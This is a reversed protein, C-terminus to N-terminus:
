FYPVENWVVVDLNKCGEAFYALSRTFQVTLQNLLKYWLHRLQAVRIHDAEELNEWLDGVNVVVRHVGIQVTNENAFNFLNDFLFRQWSFIQAFYEVNDYLRGGESRRVMKRNHM